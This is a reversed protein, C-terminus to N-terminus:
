DLNLFEALEKQVRKMPRCEDSPFMRDLLADGDIREAAHSNLWDQVHEREVCRLADLRTVACGKGDLEASIEGLKNFITERRSKEADDLPDKAPYIIHFFIVLRPGAQKPPSAAWFQAYAKLLAIMADNWYKGYVGHEILLLRNALKSDGPIETANRASGGHFKKVTYALQDLLYDLERATPPAQVWPAVLPLVTDRMSENQQDLLFPLTDFRIRRVFGSHAADESGPLFYIQPMEAPQSKFRMKFAMEQQQRDCLHRVEDGDNREQTTGAGPASEFLSVKKDIEDAVMTWAADNDPASVPDDKFMCQLTDIPNGKLQCSRVIVPVLAIRGDRYNALATKFEQGYAFDSNIFDASILLVVIKSTEFHKWIEPKWEAGVPIAQDSWIEV